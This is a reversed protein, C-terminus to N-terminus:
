KDCKRINPITLCPLRTNKDSLFQIFYDPHADILNLEFLHDFAILTSSHHQKNKQAKDNDIILTRLFPFDQSIIKFLKYEFPRIDKM